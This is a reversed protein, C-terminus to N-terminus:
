EDQAGRWLRRNYPRLPARSLVVFYNGSLGVNVFEAAEARPVSSWGYYEAEYGFRAVFADIWLVHDLDGGLGRSAGLILGPTSM